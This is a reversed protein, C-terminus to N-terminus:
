KLRCLTVPYRQGLSVPQADKKVRLPTETSIPSLQVVMKEFGPKRACSRCSDLEFLQGSTPLRDGDFKLFPISLAFSTPSQADIRVDRPVSASSLTVSWDEAKRSKPTTQPRDVALVAGRAASLDTWGGPCAGATMLLVDKSHDAMFSRFAEGKPGTLEDLSKGIEDDKLAKLKDVRPGIPDLAAQLEGIKQNLADKRVALAALTTGLTVEQQSAGNARDKLDKERQKIQAIVGDIELEQATLSSMKQKLNDSLIKKASDAAQEPLVAFLYYAVGGGTLTFVTALTVILTKVFRWVEQQVRLTLVAAVIEKKQIADLMRLAIEEVSSADEPAAGQESM